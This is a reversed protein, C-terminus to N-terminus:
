RASEARGKSRRTRADKNQLGRDKELKDALRTQDDDRDGAITQMAPRTVEGVPDREIRRDKYDVREYFKRLSKLVRTIRKSRFKLM